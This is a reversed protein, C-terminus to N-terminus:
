AKGIADAVIAAGLTTAPVGSGPHAGAGVCYLGKVPSVNAARRRATRYGEWAVGAWWSPSAQRSVVKDRIPLGRAVLLDLVDDTPYGHVLVTWAQHGAPARGGTRVVVTPTGHLVTEFPLTPVPERLGLHVVYAAQAQHTALVRKRVKKAAPDDVLQGYLDRPDIDSVVVDATLETGDALRVGTVTGAKTTVATVDAGTRVTIKRESARQALADALAGFGGDATWRGFTRELYSWVGVYGPTLKADSGGQAAFHRLVARAREDSLHRQAVKELSQWPKLARVASLPLKHELPPELSTKRLIQWTDGYSDVLDTWQQAVQAGALDTWADAQDGRDSVPLDLVSGDSFMHRRPETVPELQLLSDIPRGSKRFLDRLAAPLTTSAAGADWQFGDAEIRGLVGGLREDRECITVQHGLKALRVASALGALGAGVVIVESM